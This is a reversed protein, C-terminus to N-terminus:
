HTKATLQLRVVLFTVLKLIEATLSMRIVNRMLVHCDTQSDVIMM